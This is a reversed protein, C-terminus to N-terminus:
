KETQRSFGNIMKRVQTFVQEQTIQDICLVRGHVLCPFRGPSVGYAACGACAIHAHVSRPCCEAQTHREVRYPYFRGWDWSQALVIAQTGAAAAIHGASTDNSLLFAACRILEIYEILSTKGIRSLIRRKEEAKVYRCIKQLENEEGATGAAVCLISRDLAFIENLVAAYKKADWYKQPTEGGPCLVFYRAPLHLKKEAQPLLPALQPIAARFAGDNSLGRIFQANRVLEMTRIGGCRIVRDYLRDSRRVQRKKMRTTDAQQAIREQARVALVVIDSLLTRSPDANIAIRCSIGMAQWIGYLRGIGRTRLVIVEDFYGTKEALMRVDKYRDCVFTIKEGPYIRRFEKAADLWLVFDGIHSFRVLLIGRADPAQKGTLRMRMYLLVFLIKNIMNSVAHKM